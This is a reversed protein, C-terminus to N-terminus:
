ARTRLLVRRARSRAAFRRKRRGNMKRRSARAAAITRGSITIKTSISTKEATERGARVSMATESRASINRGEQAAAMRGSVPISERRRADRRSPVKEEKKRQRGAKKRRRRRLVSKRAAGDRGPGATKARAGARIRRGTRRRDAGQASGEASETLSMRARQRSRMLRNRRRKMSRLVRFKLSSLLQAM